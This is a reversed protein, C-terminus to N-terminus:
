TYSFNHSNSYNHLWIFDIYSMITGKHEYVTDTKIYLNYYGRSTLEKRGEDEEDEKSEM